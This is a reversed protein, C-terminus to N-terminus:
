PAEVRVGIFLILPLPRDPIGLPSLQAVLDETNEPADTRADHIGCGEAVAQLAAVRHVAERVVELRGYSVTRPPCCHLAESPGQTLRETM